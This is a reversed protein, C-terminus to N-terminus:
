CMIFLPRLVFITKFFPFFMYKQKWPCITLFSFVGGWRLQMSVTTIMARPKILAIIFLIIKLIEPSNWLLCMTWWGFGDSAIKSVRWFGFNKRKMNSWLKSLIQDYKCYKKGDLLGLATSWLLQTRALTCGAGHERTSLCWTMMLIMENKTRASSWEQVRVIYFLVEEQYDSLGLWWRNIDSTLSEDQSISM